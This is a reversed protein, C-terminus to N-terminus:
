REGELDPLLAGTPWGAPPRARPPSPGAPEARGPLAGRAAARALADLPDV